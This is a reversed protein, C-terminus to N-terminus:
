RALGGGDLRRRRWHFGLGSCCILLQELFHFSVERVEAINSNPEEKEKREQLWGYCSEGQRAPSEPPNKAEGEARHSNFTTVVRRM